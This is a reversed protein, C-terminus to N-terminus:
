STGAAPGAFGHRHLVERPAHCGPVTPPPGWHRAMQRQWFTNALSRGADLEARFDAVRQEWPEEAPLGSAAGATAGGGKKAWRATQLARELWAVPHIPGERQAAGLAALLAEDGYDRRWKGLLQRCTQEPRGSHRALWQLGSNFLLSAVDPPKDASATPIGRAPGQDREKEKDRDGEQDPAVARSAERPKADDPAPEDPTGDPPPLKSASPRDIRQHRAWNCIQLYRTGGAEYRRICGERELEALWAEIQGAADDDYPFLLGALMRPAARARGVDDAITWLQIFLLRADRSVRGMSESQPFEPKITRIRRM